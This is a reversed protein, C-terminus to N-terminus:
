LNMLTEIRKQIVDISSALKVYGQTPSRSGARWENSGDPAVQCYGDTEVSFYPTNGEVAQLVAIQDWSARGKFNNYYEYAKYVPSNPKCNAKFAEGGTVIQQGVEWGAFTVPLQWNALCDVTSAPDPRYFNAEKGSPFQGGMCSWAKVKRAILEQGSLPSISDPSSHLLRSLSTLHGITIIVVSRDPQSALLRRYVSTSTEAIANSALRHPFAQAIKQTYRSFSKLSDRQSVGIPIDKRGFYTNIADTCAASYRDDSTVIVGLIRAQGAREFAHLMALAGVDDVDSDMDTDLIVAIPPGPHTSQTPQKSLWSLLSTLILLFKIAM